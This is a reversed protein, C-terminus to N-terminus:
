GGDLLPLIMLEDGDKLATESLEGPGLFRGNLIISTPVDSDQALAYSAIRHLEENEQALRRFLEVIGEGENATVFIVEFGALARDRKQILINQVKLKVRPM